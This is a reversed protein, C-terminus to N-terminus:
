GLYTLLIEYFHQMFVPLIYRESRAKTCGLVEVFTEQQCSPAPHKDKDSAQTRNSILSTQPSLFGHQESIELADM